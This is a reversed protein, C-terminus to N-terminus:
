ERNLHYYGPLVVEIREEPNDEKEYVCKYGEKTRRVHNILLDMADRVFEARTAGGTESVVEDVVELLSPRVNIQLRFVKPSGKM